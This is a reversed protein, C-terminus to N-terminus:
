FNRLSVEPPFQIIEFHASLEPVIGSALALITGGSLMISYMLPKNHSLSEM